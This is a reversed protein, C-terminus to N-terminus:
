LLISFKLIRPLTGHLIQTSVEVGNHRISSIWYSGGRWRADALKWMEM